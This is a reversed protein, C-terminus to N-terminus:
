EDIMTSLAREGQRDKYHHVSSYSKRQNQYAMPPPIKPTNTIEEEKARKEEEAVAGERCDCWCFLAEVGLMILIIGGFILIAM